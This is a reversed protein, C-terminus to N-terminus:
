YGDGVGIKIGEEWDSGWSEGKKAKEEQSHSKELERKVCIYVSLTHVCVNM